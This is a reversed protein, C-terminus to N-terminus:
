LPEGRPFQLKEKYAENKVEDAYRTFAVNRKNPFRSMTSGMLFQTMGLKIQVNTLFEQAEEGERLHEWKALDYFPSRVFELEKISTSTFDNEYFKSHMPANIHEEKHKNADTSSAPTSFSCYQTAALAM